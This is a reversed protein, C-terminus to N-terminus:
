RPAAAAAAAAASSFPAQLHLSAHHARLAEERTALLEKQETLWRCKDEVEKVRSALQEKLSDVQNLPKTLMCLNLYCVYLPKTRMCICLSDVQNQQAKVEKSADSLFLEKGLLLAEREELVEKQAQLDLERRYNAYMCLNPECVSASRRKCSSNAVTSKAIAPM